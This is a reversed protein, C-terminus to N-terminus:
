IVFRKLVDDRVFVPTEFNCEAERLVNKITYINGKKDTVMNALDIIREPVPNNDEDFIIMVKPRLKVKENVEVVMGIAGNTMVVVCGPPYIGLSEIFKTVLHRDLITGTMNTMIQTAELHNKNKHEFRNKTLSDYTDVVSIIKAFDSIASQKLQRPQGTGDLHEHHILAVELVSSHINESSKLLEYGLTSHSNLTRRQSETLQDENKNLIESPILMNGIDHLMGCVGLNVIVENPLNLHRGLVISLISVNISHQVTHEDKNNLHMMWLMADPSHLVSNVCDSVAKKALWGDISGGKQATKMFASVLMESNKYAKEAKVIENEFTSLKKPPETSFNGLIKGGGTSQNKNAYSISPHHRSKTKTVDIYVYDCINKVAQIQAQTTLEFGQFLFPTDLWSRDLEVIYMGILLQSVPIYLKESVSFNDSNSNKLNNKDKFSLLKKIFMARREGYLNTHNFGYLYKLIILALILM